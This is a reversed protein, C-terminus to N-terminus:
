TFIIGHGQHNIDERKITQTGCTMEMVEYREQKQRNTTTKSCIIALTTASLLLQVASTTIASSHSDAQTILTLCLSSARIVRLVRLGKM